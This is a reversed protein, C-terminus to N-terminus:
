ENTDKRECYEKVTEGRTYLTKLYNNTTSYASTLYINKDLINENNCYSNRYFSVLKTLFRRDNGRSLIFARLYDTNFYKATDEYVLDYRVKVLEEKSKYRIEIDKTLDEENLVGYELLTKKLTYESDFNATFSDIEELSYSTRERFKSIKKFGPLMSIDIKGYEKNKKITLYYAM